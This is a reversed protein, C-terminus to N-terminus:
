TSEKPFKSVKKPNSILRGWISNFVRLVFDNGGLNNEMIQM